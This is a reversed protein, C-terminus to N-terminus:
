AVILISIAQHLREILPSLHVSYLFLALFLSRFFRRFYVAEGGKKAAKEERQEATRPLKGM